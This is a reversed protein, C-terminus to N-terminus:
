RLQSRSDVSQKGKTSNDDEEDDEYSNGDDSSGNVNLTPVLIHESGGSETRGFPMRHSPSGDYEDRHDSREFAPVAAPQPPRVPSGPFEATAVATEVHVQISNMGVGGDEKEENAPRGGATLGLARKVGLFFGGGTSTSAGGGLNIRGRARRKERDEM